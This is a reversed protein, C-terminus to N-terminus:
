RLRIEPNVPALSVITLTPGVRASVIISQSDTSFSLWAANSDIKQRELARPSRMSAATQLRRAVESLRFLPAVRLALIGNATQRRQVGTVPRQPGAGREGRAMWGVANERAMTPSKLPSEVIVFIMGRCM